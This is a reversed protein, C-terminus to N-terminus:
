QDVPDPSPVGLAVMLTQVRELLGRTVAADEEIRRLIEIAEDRNGLELTLYAQQELALLYFPMGPQALATAAALRAETDETPLMVAKIAALDRYMEPTDPDTAIANLATAAADADGAEELSSARLLAAIADAGGGGEFSELAAARAEPTDAELATYIADGNAEAQARTQAKSYENFAAGGVLVLVAAVGIWGYRRLYGYLKERRVEETVENIFSDDNSM